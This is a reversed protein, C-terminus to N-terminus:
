ESLASHITILIPPAHGRNRYTSNDTVEASIYYSGVDFRETISLGTGILVDNAFWAVYDVGSQDIVNVSLTIDTSPTALVHSADIRVIPPTYDVPPDSDHANHPRDHIHVHRTKNEALNGVSDVCSYTVTHMVGPKSSDIQDGDHTLTVPDNSGTCFAGLDRYPFGVPIHLDVPGLVTIQPLVTQSDSASEHAHSSEGITVTITNSFISNHNISNDIALATIEHIGPDFGVVIGSGLGIQETDNDFWIIEAIGSPDNVVASFMIQSSADGFTVNSHITIYPPQVDELPDRIVHVTRVKDNAKNGAADTCFYTVTYTGMLKSDVTNELTLVPAPDADDSCTAGDDTYTGSNRTIQLESPGILTITPLTGDIVRVTRTVNKAKNGASDICSYEVTYVGLATTDVDSLATASLVPAPDADDSCTAGDDTYTGSNRTIQLESPGILTITPLTGDIVRVTRTVNKAKNGASDICSYEVTYVGLATTDVDSLATASLVPAPDADDSCTAGDDTYTGSNRTIQLESPGILTITPLTGDIVRVTRTVNKAKNGASDICSYEVTYVGLATTDVDSLATASLVPAPDADDSCTAGDDTYTGSNRTIQLESPGILTITPLTGDIVRVTRTVNKAKNGASDICSYEVTYVGLATTDVDSLATASLVPAPDADDSCTAGDDTYTGSNRTIQLESPGILTITPLTGDIVRVTRTVNKAKNGASDICSYEVTYVGLATTDVDSLATASLVPAPDADDSCTAGDDTYTGSNRMVDVTMSGTITITPVSVDRVKVLVKVSDAANGATDTCSYVVTYTGAIAMDPQTHTAFITGDVVDYCTAHLTGDFEDGPDYVVTDSLSVLVPPITDSSSQKAKHVEYGGGKAFIQSKTVIKIHNFNKESVYVFDGHATISTPGSFSVPGTHHGFHSVYNGDTDYVTIGNGADNIMYIVSGELHFDRVHRTNGPELGVTGIDRVHVLDTKNYVSVVDNNLLYLYRGSEVAREGYYLKADFPMHMQSRSGNEGYKLLAGKDTVIWMGDNGIGIARPRKMKPDSIKEISGTDRDYVKIKFNLYDPAMIHTSNHATDMIWSFPGAYQPSSAKKGKIDRDGTVNMEIKEIFSGSPDFVKIWYYDTVYLRDDFVRMSDIIAFKDDGAGRSGFVAPADRVVVTKYAPPASNGGADTCSYKIQYFGPEWTKVGGSAFPTISGDTEDTCTVGAHIYKGRDADRLMVEIADNVDIVPPTVDVPAQAFAQVMDFPTFVSNISNITDYHSLNVDGDMDNSGDGGALALAFM